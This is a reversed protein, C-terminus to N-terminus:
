PVIIEKLRALLDEGTIPKHFVWLPQFGKLQTERAPDRTATLVVIPLTKSHRRVMRVVAQGDVHPMNYDTMVLDPAGERCKELVELVSFPLFDEVEYGAEELTGRVYRRLFASDDIILIKAM